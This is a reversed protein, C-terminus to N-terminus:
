RQYKLADNVHYQLCAILFEVLVLLETDRFNFEHKDKGVYGKVQKTVQLGTETLPGM